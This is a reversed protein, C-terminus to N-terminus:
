IEIAQTYIEYAKSLVNQVSDYGATSDNDNSLATALLENCDGCIGDDHGCDSADFSNTDTCGQVNYVVEDITVLANFFGDHLGYEGGIKSNADFYITSLAQELKNLKKMIKLGTKTHKGILEALFLDIEKCAKNIM